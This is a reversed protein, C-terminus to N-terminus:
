YMVPTVEDMKTFFRINFWSENKTLYVYKLENTLEFRALLYLGLDGYACMDVNKHCM